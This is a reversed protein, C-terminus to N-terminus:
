AYDDITETTKKGDRYGADYGAKFGESNAKDWALKATAMHDNHWWPLNNPDVDNDFLYEGWWNEFDMM